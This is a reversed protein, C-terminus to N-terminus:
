VYLQKIFEGVKPNIKHWNKEIIYIVINHIFRHFWNIPSCSKIDKDFLHRLCLGEVILIGKYLTTICSIELKHPHGHSCDISSKCTKHQDCIYLIKM